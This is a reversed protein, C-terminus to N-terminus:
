GREVDMIPRVEVSGSRATPCLAAFELAEDLDACDLMFYGGLWETSEAFPGDTQLTEGDRIRVTTATTPAHLADAGVLVGRDRCNAYFAQMASLATAAEPTGKEPRDNVYTLLLYRMRSEEFTAGFGADPTQCSSSRAPARDVDALLIVHNGGHLV